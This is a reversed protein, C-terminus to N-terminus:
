EVYGLARLAKIEESDDEGAPLRLGRGVRQEFGAQLVDVWGKPAQAAELPERELPDERRNYAVWSAGEARPSRLLTWARDRIAFEKGDPGRPACSLVAEDKCHSSEGVLETRTQSGIPRGDANPLGGLGLVDLVTPALDMLDVLEEVREGARAGGPVKIVLPVRLQEASAHTGHDFWLERETFSEGHDATLIILADDYRGAEKLAQVLRGVQADVHEVAAAYRATYFRPDSIGEIRQYPAIRALQEPHREWAGDLPAAEAVVDFPGHADYSHWWLFLRAWRRQDGLWDIARQATRDGPRRKVGEAPADYVQFGPALGLSPRLTFGSVFAATSFGEERLRTALTPTGEALAPGGRFTNLVVGHSGPSQGTFLSVFAPGTVSIPSFAQEFVVGDRALADIAPTKAPSDPNFAGVHDLRLTDVTLLVVDPGRERRCGILVGFVFASLSLPM